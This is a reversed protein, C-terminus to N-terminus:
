VKTSPILLPTVSKTYFIISKQAIAELLPQCGTFTSQSVHWARLRVGSRNMM